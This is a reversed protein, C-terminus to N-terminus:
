SKIEYPGSKASALCDARFQIAKEGYGGKGFPKRTARLKVDLIFIPTPDVKEGFCFPSTLIVSGKM